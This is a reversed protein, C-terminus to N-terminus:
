TDVKAAIVLGLDVTDDERPVLFVFRKGDVKRSGSRAPSTQALLAAARRLLPGAIALPFLIQTQRRLPECTPARVWAADRDTRAWRACHRVVAPAPQPRRIFSANARCISPCGIAHQGSGNSRACRLKTVQRRRWGHRQRPKHLMRRCFPRTSARASRAACWTGFIPRVGRVPAYAPSRHTEDSGRNPKRRRRVGCIAYLPAADRLM